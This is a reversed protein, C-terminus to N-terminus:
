GDSGTLNSYYDWWWCWGFTTRVYLVFVRCTSLGPCFGSGPHHQVQEAADKTALSFLFSPSSIDSNNIERMKWIRDRYYKGMAPVTQIPFWGQLRQSSCLVSTYHLDLCVSYSPHKWNHQKLCQLKKWAKWACDWCCWPQTTSFYRMSTLLPSWM